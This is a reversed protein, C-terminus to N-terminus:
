DISRIDVPIARIVLSTSGRQKFANVRFRAVGPISYSFDVENEELFEELKRPDDLMERVAGDTDERTLGSLGEIPRMNGDVRMVPPAPVKLHLDSGGAEILLRLCFNLDFAMGIPDAPM